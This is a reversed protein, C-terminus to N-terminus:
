DGVFTRIADVLDRELFPKVLYAKAGQRLGWSQDSMDSKNSIIIIPIESTNPNKTLDRTAQFGNRKPMIIDMLILDPHHELALSVAEEGDQAQIALHGMGEVLRRLGEQQTPSDDAILIRAM